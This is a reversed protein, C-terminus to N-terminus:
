PVVCSGKLGTSRAVGVDVAVAIDAVAAGSGWPGTSNLGKAASVGVKRNPCCCAAFAGEAAAAAAAPPM